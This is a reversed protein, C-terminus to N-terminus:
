GLWMELSSELHSGSGQQLHDLPVTVLSCELMVQQSWCELQLVIRQQLHVQLMAQPWEQHLAAEQQLYDQLISVLPCETM